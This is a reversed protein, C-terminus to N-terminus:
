INFGITESNVIVMLVPEDPDDIKNQLDTLLVRDLTSPKTSAHDPHSHWDGIYHVVKATRENCQKIYDSLGDSGRIFTTPTSISDKPEECVDVIYINKLKQDRYGLIVGGTENPLFKERLKFLKLYIFDDYVVKWGNSLREVKPPSIPVMYANLQGISDDLSWIKIQARNDTKGFRIQRALLSGHFKILENSIVMSIDRCGGGTRLAGNHNKLHKTGWDNELIARYYQLELVDARIIREVDEFLLVSDNGSPTIFVSVIRVSNELTSLDRATEISTTVDVLIDANSLAQNVAPNEFENIKAHIAKTEEASRYILDILQKVVTVKSKGIHFDKGIHRVVNHPKLLDYDVYTWKGWAERSWLDALTSGLAGVGAIVGTFNADSNKVGSAKRAFDVTTEFSIQIYDMLIKDLNIKPQEISINFLSCDPYCIDTRNEDFGKNLAGLRIGLDAINTQTLAFGYIEPSTNDQIDKKEKPVILLLLLFDDTSPHTFLIGNSGVLAKIEKTLAGVLDIDKRNFYEILGVLNAPVREIPSLGLEPLNVVLSEIFPENINSKHSKYSARFIKHLNDENPIFTLGLRFNESYLKDFFDFPLVVECYNNFFLREQVIDNLHLTHKATESFWWLIRQLYKRPTWTREITEWAEAYLCLSAAEESSTGNLHKTKPFDKRLALVEYPSGFRANPDYVIAITEVVLIGLPNESPVAGDGCRVIIAEATQETERSLEVIEIIEFDSHNRCAQYLQRTQEYRLLEPTLSSYPKGISFFLDVSIM